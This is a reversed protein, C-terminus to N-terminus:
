IDFSLVDQEQSPEYPGDKVLMIISPENVILTHYQNQLVQGGLVGYSSLNLCNQINGDEDYFVIDVSGRLLVYTESTNRHRHISFKTAPDLAYLLRQSPSQLSQHLNYNWRKRPNRVAQEMMWDFFDSSFVVKPCATEVLTVTKPCGLNEEDEVMLKNDLQLEFLIPFVRLRSAGSNEMIDSVRVGRKGKLFSIVKEIDANKADVVHEM